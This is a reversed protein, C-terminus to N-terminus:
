LPMNVHGLIPSDRKRAEGGGLGIIERSCDVVRDSVGSITM